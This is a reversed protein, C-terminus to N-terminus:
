PRPKGKSRDKAVEMTFIALFTLVHSTEIPLGSHTQDQKWSTEPAHM